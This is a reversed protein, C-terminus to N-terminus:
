AVRRTRRSPVAIRIPPPRMLRARSALLEQYEAVDQPEALGAVMLAVIEDLRREIESERPVSTQFETMGTM